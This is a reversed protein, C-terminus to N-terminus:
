VAAALSGGQADLYRQKLAAKRDFAKRLETALVREVLARLAFVRVEVQGEFVRRVGNPIAEFRILGWVRLHERAAHDICYDLTCTRPDFTSHEEYAIELGRTHRQILEPLQVTPLVRVRRQVRGDDLTRCELVRRERVGLARDVALNFDADFYVRVFRALDVNHFSHEIRLNM